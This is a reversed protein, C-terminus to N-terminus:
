AELNMAQAAVTEGNILKYTFSDNLFHTRTPPLLYSCATKLPYIKNGAGKEESEAEWGCHPSCNQEVICERGNYEAEVCPLLVLHDHVSVESVM